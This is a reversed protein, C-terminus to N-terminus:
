GGIIYATTIGYPNWSPADSSPTAACDEAVLAGNAHVICRYVTSSVNDAIYAYQGGDITAIWVNTLSGWPAGSNPTQACASLAGSNSITCKYIVSAKGDAVYAYQTSGVTAIAIAQPAWDPAGAVPTSGCGILSGDTNNITCQQVGNSIASIYAYQTAIGSSVITTFALASAEVDGASLTQNCSNFSGDANVTCAYTDHNEDIVYGFPTGGIIAFAIFQPSWNTGSPTANCNILVGSTNLSCQYVAGTSQGDAVYAYQSGNFTAFTIGAPQWGTVVGSPLTPAPCSSFTGNNALSCQYVGGAFNAVYAYQATSQNLVVSGNDLQITGTVTSGNYTVQVCLPQSLSDSSTGCYKANIPCNWHTSQAYMGVCYTGASQVYAQLYNTLFQMSFHYGQNYNLPTGTNIILYQGACNGSCNTDLLCFQLYNVTDSSAGSFIYTAGATDGLRVPASLANLTLPAPMQAAHCSLITLILPLCLMPKM